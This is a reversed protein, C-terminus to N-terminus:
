QSPHSPSLRENPGSAGATSNYVSITKCIYNITLHLDEQFSRIYYTCITGTRGTAKLVPMYGEQIIFMGGIIGINVMFFLQM